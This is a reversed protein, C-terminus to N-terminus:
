HGGLNGNHLPPDLSDFSSNLPVHFVIDFVAKFSNNNVDFNIALNFAFETCKSGLLPGKQQFANIKPLYEEKHVCSAM